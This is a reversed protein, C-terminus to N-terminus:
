RLQYGHIEGTTAGGLDTIRSYKLRTGCAVGGRQLPEDIDRRMPAGLRAKILCVDACTRRRGVSRTAFSATVDVAPGTARIVERAVDMWRGLDTLIDCPSTKRDGSCGRRRPLRGLGMLTIGSRPWLGAQPPQLWPRRVALAPVDTM